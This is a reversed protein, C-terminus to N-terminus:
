EKATPRDSRAHAEAITTKFKEAENILNELSGMIFGITFSTPQGEIRAKGTRNLVYAGVFKAAEDSSNQFDVALEAISTVEEEKTM